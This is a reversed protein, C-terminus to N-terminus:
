TFRTTVTGLGDFGVAIEAPGSLWAPPTVSGCLIVQGARLGGFAAAAPSAALWRLVALPHGLLDGGQGEGFVTGNVTMRGRAAALDRGALRGAPWDEADAGIVAAGHFFRDAILMPTGIGVGGQYRNEVIEIAPLVAAVAAALAEPRHDGPPIDRGLRFAIECEVGPTLWSRFPITSGSPLLGSRMMFGAAPTRIGLHLQMTAATAGIKFGAPPFAGLRRALAAQVAYGEAPDAPAIAPDLPTLPRRAALADAIAEAAREPRGAHEIM